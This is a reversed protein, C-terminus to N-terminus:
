LAQSVNVRQADLIKDFIYQLIYVNGSGITETFHLNIDWSNGSAFHGGSSLDDPALGLFQDSTTVSGPALTFTSFSVYEITYHASFISAVLDISELTFGNRKFWAFWRLLSRYKEIPIYTIDTPNVSTFLGGIAPNSVSSFGVTPIYQPFSADAGFTFANGSILLTSATPWPMGIWYGLYTLDTPTATELSLNQYYSLASDKQAYDYEQAGIVAQALTGSM